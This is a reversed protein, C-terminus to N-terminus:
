RVRELLFDVVQLAESTDVRFTITVIFSNSDFNSQVVVSILIARPEYNEIVEKIYDELIGESLPSMPEFLMARINGGIEPDLLREYKNTMVLSKISRKVADVDTLRTLDKNFPNLGFGISVDSFRAERKKFTSTNKIYSSM